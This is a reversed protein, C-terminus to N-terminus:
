PNWRPRNSDTSITYRGRGVSMGKFSSADGLEPWNRKEEDDIVPIPKYMECVPGIGACDGKISLACIKCSKESVVLRRKVVM